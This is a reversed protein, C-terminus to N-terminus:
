NLKGKNKQYIKYIRTQNWIIITHMRTFIHTDKGSSWLRLEKSSHHLLIGNRMNHGIRGTNSIPQCHAIIISVLTRPSRSSSAGNITFIGESKM